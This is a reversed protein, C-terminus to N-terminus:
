LRNGGVSEPAVGGFRAMVRLEVYPLSDPVWNTRPSDVTVLSFGATTPREERGFGDALGTPPLRFFSHKCKRV